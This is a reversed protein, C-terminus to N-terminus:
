DGDCQTCSWVSLLPEQRVRLYLPINHKGCLHEEQNLPQILTLECCEKCTLALGLITSRVTKHCVKCAYTYDGEPEGSGIHGNHNSLRNKYEERFIRKEEEFSVQPQQTEQTTEVLPLAGELIRIEGEAVRLDLELKFIRANLMTEIKDVKHGLSLFQSKLVLYEKIPVYPTTMNFQTNSNHDNNM